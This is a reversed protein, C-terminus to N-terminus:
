RIHFLNIEYKIPFENVFIMPKIELTAQNMQQDKNNSYVIPLAAIAWLTVGLKSYVSIECLFFSLICSGLNKLKIRWDSSSNWM